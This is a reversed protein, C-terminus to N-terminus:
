VELDGPRAIRLRGQVCLAQIGGPLLVEGRGQLLAELAEVVARGPARGSMAEAWRSLVARRVSRPASLLPAVDLGDGCRAQAYLPEALSDLLERDARADDALAGLHAVISPDERALEPLLKTRIRVRLFRADANSPDHVVPLAHAAVYAHVDARPCDILPRVVGDERAPHIAALGRTSSGRLLRELVTEAQDDLTHGVAVAGLERRHACALLAAYRAHRAQAQLSAGGSVDVRLAEFPLGLSRTFEGVGYVESAAEARLGHDVSAVHVRLGLEPALRGLVHVLAVSDPGGSCGVLVGRDDDLLKRQGLTRRVRALIM